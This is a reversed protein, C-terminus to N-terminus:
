SVFLVHHTCFECKKTLIQKDQRLEGAATKVVLYSPKSWGIANHATIEIKYFSDPDLSHIKYYFLNLKERVIEERPKSIPHWGTGTRLVQLCSPSSSTLIKLCSACWAISLLVTTSVLTFPFFVAELCHQASIKM